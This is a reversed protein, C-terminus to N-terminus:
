KGTAQALAAEISRLQSAQWDQFSANAPVLTETIAVVPIGSAKAKNIIAQINNPTNQSNYVLINIQKQAIQQEVTAEDTASIEQGESVATLYSPPTILRLGLAAAMSSFISETAGVPTGAYKAKIAAIESSYEKLGSTLFTQASADIAAANAPDLAKLDDRIRDAAKTVYDPNYWLHPNEGVHTGTLAGIDLTKRGGVPNAKLLADVWPDYGAGNVIVYRAEAVARADAATPEYSHPDVNPDRILSTVRVQSGGVQAAISGWFNEAAVVTIPGGSGGSPQSSLGCGGLVLALGGFTLLLAAALSRTRTRHHIQTHNLLRITPM